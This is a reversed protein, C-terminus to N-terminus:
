RYQLDRLTFPRGPRDGLIRYLVSNMTYEDNDFGVHTESRSLSPSIKTARAGAGAIVLSPWGDVNKKFLAEIERDVLEKNPDQSASSVFREMGLLPIERKKEFANSVLYLLSKGYPGVDDDREGVDSLIYMTPRPCDGSAIHPMLQEKFLEVTIAPAMFQLSKFNIGLGILLKIAYAAFISGASHGVVHLEWKRRETASLGAMAAQATQTLLRMGGREASALRANEKMEDWLSSGPSAATIEITRDKAEVIGDRLKRLWDAGAREDKNTFLDLISAKLSEWFGTEWMIHVPYIQNALCVDRFAIVRRAVAAESNLGGHLYLLIRRKKWDKSTEQISQFLRTLDEKTTWYEGSASLQGNNGVDVVYPRIDSLPVARSARQIGATTDAAGEESWMDFNIPVGLQAVWCDTAHLMWDEYPLLAFGGAGWTEGWSNQIIFGDHTYGVIAIAHGSDARGKRTIVPFHREVLNGSLAYTVEKKKPGPEDWGEHVMITVYLVGAEYIAAHMDRINRHMVRYYAGGPTRQSEAAVKYSFSGTGHKDDSWSARSCVGHAVWGKMAGRASSGDYNEGPWEDYRRAMEYLMRPSVIRNRNLANILSRYALQYNIVAALAFGTCAGETGQDLIEPILDCSVVQDPLPSLTPQYFWDRVDIRDPVADLKRKIKESVTEAPASERRRSAPARTSKPAASEVAPQDPPDATKRTRKASM